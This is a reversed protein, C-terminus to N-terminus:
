DRPDGARAKLGDAATLFLALSTQALVVKGDPMNVRVYVSPKGSQMGKEMLIVANLEGDQVDKGSLSERAKQEDLIIQLPTM